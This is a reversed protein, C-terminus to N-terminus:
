LSITPFLFLAYPLATRSARRTSIVAIVLQKEGDDAPVGECVVWCELSWARVVMVASMFQLLRMTKGM